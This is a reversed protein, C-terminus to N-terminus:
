QLDKNKSEVSLNQWKQIDLKMRGSESAKDPMKLIIARKINVLKNNEPNISKVVDIEDGVHLDMSKKHPLEGNIFIDGKYFLEEVKARTMSFATKCFNDLRLSSISITTYESGDETQNLLDDMLLPNENSLDDDDDEEEEDDKKTTRKRKFRRQELNIQVIPRAPVLKTAGLSTRSTITNLREIRQGFMKQYQAQGPALPMCCLKQSSLLKGHQRILFRVNQCLAIM